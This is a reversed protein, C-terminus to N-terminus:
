YWVHLNGAVVAIQPEMCSHDILASPWIYLFTPSHDICVRDGNLGLYYVEMSRLKQLKVTYGCYEETRKLSRTVKRM